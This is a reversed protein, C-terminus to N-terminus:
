AAPVENQRNQVRLAVARNVIETLTASSLGRNALKTFAARMVPSAKIADNRERVDFEQQVETMVEDYAIQGFDDRMMAELKREFCAYRDTIRSGAPFVDTESTGLLLQLARNAKENEIAGSQQLDCDWVVFCPIGLVQFIAAPRDLNNKGDAQLVAIGLAELDVNMLGATARIAAKDSEGEVLVVVDAFFGESLEPTVIHLKSKLSDVSFSGDTVQRAQSLM